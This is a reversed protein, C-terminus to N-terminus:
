SIRDFLVTPTRIRYYDNGAKKFGIFIKKLEEITEGDLNSSPEDLLFLRHSLMSASAFAVLQKQGGSLHFMSRDVLSTLSFQETIEAIRALMTEKPLGYNEM